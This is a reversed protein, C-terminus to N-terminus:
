RRIGRLRRLWEQVTFRLHEVGTVRPRDFGLEYGWEELEASAIAEFVRIQDVTMEDRWKSHNEAMLRSQVQQAVSCVEDSGLAKGTFENMQSIVAGPASLLHEYRVILLREGLLEAARRLSVMSRVWHRACAHASKEGWQQKMLSLAVDRGDRVIWLYRATDGFLDELLDIHRWFMPLKAGLRTRNQATAMCQLVSRVVGGFGPSVMNALILDPSVDFREEVPYVSRAIELTECRSVDHVLRHLNLPNGLDGYKSLRRAFYPIFSSEPGMGYDFHAFLLESLLSTGSRAMGVVFLVPSLEDNM